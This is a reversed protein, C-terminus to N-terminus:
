FLVKVLFFIKDLLKFIVKDYFKVFVKDLIKFLAENAGRKASPELDVERLAPIM